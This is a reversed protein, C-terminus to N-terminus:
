CLQLAAVHRRHRGVTKLPSPGGLPSTGGEGPRQRLPSPSLGGLQADGESRRSRAAPKVRSFTYQTRGSAKGHPGQSVTRRSFIDQQTDAGGDERGEVFDLGALVDRRDVPTGPFDEGRGWEQSEAADEGPSLIGALVDRREISRNSPLRTMFKGSLRGTPGVDRSGPGAERPLSRSRQRTLGQRSQMAEDEVRMGGKSFQADFAEARRAAEDINLKGPSEISLRADGTGGTVQRGSVSPSAPPLPSAAAFPSLRTSHGSTPTDPWGSHGGRLGDESGPGASRAPPPTPPRHGGWEARPTTATSSLPLSSRFLSRASGPEMEALSGARIKRSLDEHSNVRLRLTNREVIDSLSPAPDVPELQQSGELVDSYRTSIRSTLSRKLSRPTAPQSGFSPVRGLAESDMRGFSAGYTTALVARPTAPQDGAFAGQYAGGVPSNDSLLSRPSPGSPTGPSPGHPQEPDSFPSRSMNHFPSAPHSATSRHSAPSPSDPVGASGATSGRAKGSM